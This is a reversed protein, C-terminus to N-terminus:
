CAEKMHSGQTRKIFLKIQFLFTMVRDIPLGRVVSYRPNWLLFVFGSKVIFAGLLRTSVIGELLEEYERLTNPDIQSFSLWRLIQFKVQYSLRYPFSRDTGIFM